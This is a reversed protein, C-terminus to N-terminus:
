LAADFSLTVPRHSSINQEDNYGGSYDSWPPIADHYIVNCGTESAAGTWREAMGASLIAHDIVSNYSIITTGDIQTTAIRWDEDDDFVSLSPYRSNIGEVTDNFDGMIAVRSALDDGVRTPLEATLWTHLSETQDQRYASADDDDFAAMHVVVVVLSLGSAHTLSVVMPDKSLDYTNPLNVEIVDDVRFRDSRYLLGLNQSGGTSGVEWDWTDDFGLAEIAAAGELEQLAVLSLDYEVLLTRIMEHDRASRPVRDGADAIRPSLWDINFTAARFPVISPTTDVSEGTDITTATDKAGTCALLLTFLM